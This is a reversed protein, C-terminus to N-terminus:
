VNRLVPGNSRKNKVIASYQLQKADSKVFSKADKAIKIAVEQIYKSSTTQVPEVCHHSALVQLLRDPHMKHLNEHKGFPIKLIDQKLNAGTLKIAKNEEWRLMDEKIQKDLEVLSTVITSACFESCLMKPSREKTYEGTMAKSHIEKFDNTKLQKHGFPIINALGAFYQDTEASASLRGFKSYVNTHIENEVTKFKNVIEQQWDAGYVQQLLLHNEKSILAIPDIKYMDSYLQKNIDFDDHILAPNIHSRQAKGVSNFHLMAAHGHSSFLTTIKDFLGILKSMVTSKNLVNDLILVGPGINKLEKTTEQELYSVINHAKQAHHYMAELRKNGEIFNGKNLQRLIPLTSSLDAVIAYEKLTIKDKLPIDQDSVISEHVKDLKTLVREVDPLNRTKYIFYAIANIASGKTIYDSYSISSKIIDQSLFANLKTNGITDLIFQQVLAKTEKSPLHEESYAGEDILSTLQIGMADFRSITGNIGEKFDLWPNLKNDDPQKAYEIDNLLRSIIQQNEPSDIYNRKEELTNLPAMKKSSKKM